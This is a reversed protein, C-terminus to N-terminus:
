QTLQSFVDELEVQKRTLEYLEWNKKVALKFIQLRIDKSTNVTILYRNTDTKNVNTVHSITKLGSIVAKGKIETEIIQNKNVNSTLTENTGDAVIKGQHLVILRTCMKSIEGLVHSSIIVTRKKGLEHVLNQIEKRQNPDLGESPEDLILINPNGLMAQAVGVRQRYGKSLESILRYYVSQLGTKKVVQKIEIDPDSLHRIKSWYKLWEEVTMEDYLPNNEPLYGINKRIAINEIPNQNNILIQGTSPPLVGSIMKLTTTKGAGNPGILGVIEGEKIKLNLNKIVKLNGFKKSVQNLTIM